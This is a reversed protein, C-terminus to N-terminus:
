KGWGLENITNILIDKIEDNYGFRDQSIMISQMIDGNSHRMSAAKWDALLEILDLLTMKRFQTRRCEALSSSEFRFGAHLTGKDMARWIGGSSVQSHGLRHLSAVMRDIGFTTLDLDVCHVVYKVTPEKVGLNYSHQVDESPTAWELNDFHNNQRNSDKHNVQPKNDPNDIFASAVLRHILHNKKVTEKNLQVRLYQSHTVQATLIREKVSLDGNGNQRPVFRTLSKVDGYNSVDYYGEYGPIPRWELSPDYFEPHHSNRAYHHTLAPKMASLFGKYEDSGYTCKALKPTFEDFCEVEPSVLKSADHVLAREMLNSVADHVFGQVVQIHKFTEVRSDYKESM